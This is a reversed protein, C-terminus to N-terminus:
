PARELARITDDAHRRLCANENIRKKRRGKKIFGPRDLAARLPVVARPDGLARLRTVADRRAKCTPEQELDLLFSALRDIEGGLGLEEATAFAKKRVARDKHAALEVLRRRAEPDKGERALLRAADVLVAGDDDIMLRLNDRVRQDAIVSPDLAVAAQYAELAPRYDSKTAHAHGLQMQAVADGTLAGPQATLMEITRDPDGAELKKEAEAAAESKLGALLDVQPPRIFLFYSAYGLASLGALVGGLLIRQRLTPPPRRPRLAPIPTHRLPTTHPPPRLRPDMAVPVPETDDLPSAISADGDIRGHLVEEIAAIYQEATAFRDSPRKALGVEILRDLEATILLDPRTESLRPPPRTAHMGLLELKEDAVFPTRGAIMEFLMVTTAYLDARPDVPDGVAQEPSMYQPTGFAIGAQTLRDDSEDSDGPGGRAGDMFHAIGFDLVKAFDPVGDQQILIVNDPKVDRHVIGAQHAHGLGRLVHRAIHLARRAAIRGEAEIADSLSRGDLYEMVLYLSGGELRGFDSVTVCNPHDIRGIAAAEREFRRALEPISALSPSLLKLAVPRRITVHEALFVSGMGGRGVLSTLRYRDDIITDVLSNPNDPDAAIRGQTRPQSPQRSM